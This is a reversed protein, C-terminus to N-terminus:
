LPVDSIQVYRFTIIDACSNLQKMGALQADLDGLNKGAALTQIDTPSSTRAYFFKFIIRLVMGWVLIGAILVFLMPRIAVRGSSSNVLIGLLSSLLFALLGFFYTSFVGDQFHQLTEAAQEASRVGHLGRLALGPAWVCSITAVIIVYLEAMLVLTTLTMQLTGLFWSGKFMSGADSLGRFAFGALLTAQTTVMWYNNVYWELEKIQLQSARELADGLIANKLIDLM